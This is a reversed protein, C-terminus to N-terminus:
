IRSSTVDGRQAKTGTQLLSMLGHSLSDSVSVLSEQFECTEGM